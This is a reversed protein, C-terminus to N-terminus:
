KSAVFPFHGYLMSYLIVGAAWIDVEFGYGVKKTANIIEPAV